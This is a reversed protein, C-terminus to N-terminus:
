RRVPAAPDRGLFGVLREGVSADAAVAVEPGFSPGGRLLEEPVHQMADLAVTALHPDISSDQGTAVALDWGHVVEETLHMRVVAAGTMGGFALTEEFVGPRQWAALAMEASRRYAGAPDDGLHDQEFVSMDMADGNAAGSFGINGAVLHNVLERVNMESCPTPADYQDPSVGAVIEATRDLAQRLETIM